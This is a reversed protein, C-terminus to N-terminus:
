IFLYNRYVHVNYTTKLVYHFFNVKAHEVDSTFKKQEHMNKIVNEFRDYGNINCLSMLEIM